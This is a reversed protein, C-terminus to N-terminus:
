TLAGSQWTWALLWTVLNASGLNHLLALSPLSLPRHLGPLKVLESIRSGSLRRTANRTSAGGERSPKPKGPMDGFGMRIVSAQLSVLNTTTMKTSIAVGV